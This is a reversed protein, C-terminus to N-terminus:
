LFVGTLILVLAEFLVFFFLMFFYVECTWPSLTIPINYGPPRYCIARALLDRAGIEGVAKIPRM